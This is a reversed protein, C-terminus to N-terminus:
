RGGHFVVGFGIPPPPPERVFVVPPPPPEHVYVVPPPEGVIPVRNATAQMAKIVCDHVGNQQLWVIEQSSLHYAVGSSNIQNIIIDDSTGNHTLAVVDELGLERQQAAARQAVKQEHHDVAAGTLGGLTAGATAGILAGTGAHHTASGIAAGTLAGLTGGALMGTGAHTECGAALLASALAAGLWAKWRWGVAQPKHTGYM